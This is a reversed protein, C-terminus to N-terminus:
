HFAMRDDRGVDECPVCGISRELDFTHALKGALAADLDRTVLTLHNDLQV